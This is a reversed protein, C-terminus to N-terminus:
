LSLFIGIFFVMIAILRILFKDAGPVFALVTKGNIRGIGGQRNKLAIMYQIDDHHQGIRLEFPTIQDIMDINQLALYRGGGTDACQEDVGSNAPDGASGTASGGAPHLTSM